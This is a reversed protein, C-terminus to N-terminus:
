NKFHRDLWDRITAITTDPVELMPTHGVGPLIVSEWRPNSAAAQRMAAVPVLRDDEGGILLVPVDIGAMMKAYRQRRSLVRLLSRAAALFIRARAAAQAPTAPHRKTSLAVEARTLKPDARSPDAFCLEVLQQVGKEPSVSAMLKAVAFEGLGPTAYLLFQGSVQWDPKQPPLPLAPDILVLGKIQSPNATTELISILGGMSNGVLIVPEGVVRQMWRDLLRANAQVTSNARLGPTLGFGHLDLAVARRGAALQPGVRCWNLHSGGLGHVFVIPPQSESPSHSESPGQSKDANFEIWHVPGDLDTIYGRAGWPAAYDWPAPRTGAQDSDIM